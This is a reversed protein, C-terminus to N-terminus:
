KFAIYQKYDYIAYFGNFIIRSSFLLNVGLYSIFLANYLRLNSYSLRINITKHGRISLTKIDVKVKHRRSKNSIPDLKFANIQDIM